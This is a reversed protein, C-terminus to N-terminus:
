SCIREVAQFRGPRGPANRHAVWDKTRVFVKYTGTSPFAVTTTADRVPEGLGHALLYSSGMIKIFQTDLSWGGYDTFGEAEVLVQGGAGPEAAPSQAAIVALTLLAIAIVPKKM